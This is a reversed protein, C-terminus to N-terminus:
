GPSKLVDVDQLGQPAIGPMGISIMSFGQDFAYSKEQFRRCGTSQDAPQSSRYQGHPVRSRPRRSSPFHLAVKPQHFDTFQIRTSTFTLTESVKQMIYALAVSNIPVKLRKVVGDLAQTVQADRGTIIFRTQRGGEKKASDPSM